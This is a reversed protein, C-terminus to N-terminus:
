AVGPRCRVSRQVNVKQTVAELHDPNVCRRNGCLHDIVLGAPIAGKAEEFFLRHAIMQRGDPGASMTGAPYGDKSIQGIWNWCGTLTDIEYRSERPRRRSHGNVFRSPQGKVRGFKVSTHSAIPSPLGCGCECLM